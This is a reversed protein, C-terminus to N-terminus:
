PAPMRDAKAIRIRNIVASLEVRTEALTEMVDETSAIGNLRQALEYLSTAGVTGSIAMLNHSQVRLVSLDKTREVGALADDVSTLDEDLRKILEMATTPGALELLAAFRQEDFVQAALTDDPMKDKDKADGVRQTAHM